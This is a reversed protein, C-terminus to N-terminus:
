LFGHYRCPSLFLSFFITLNNKGLNEHFPKNVNPKHHYPIVQFNKGVNPMTKEYTNSQFSQLFIFSIQFIMIAKQAVLLISCGIWGIRLFYPKKGTKTWERFFEYCKL